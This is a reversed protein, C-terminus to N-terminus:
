PTPAWMTPTQARVKWQMGFGVRSTGTISSEEPQFVVPVGLSTREATYICLYGREAHGPGSCHTVPVGTSTYVVQSAPIPSELLSEAPRHDHSCRNTHSGTGPFRSHLQVARKLSAIKGVRDREGCFDGLIAAPRDLQVSRQPEEREDGCPLGLV